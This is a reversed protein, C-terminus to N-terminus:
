PQLGHEKVFAEAQQEADGATGSDPATTIAMQEIVEECNASVNDEPERVLARDFGSGCDVVDQTGVEDGDVADIFDNDRGGFHKDTGQQGAMGDEGPGGYIEDDGEEGFLIAFFAGEDRDNGEQGRIIDNGMNGIIFDDAGGGKMVDNGSLPNHAPDGEHLFDSGGGGNYRDPENGGVLDDNSSGGNLEDQGGLANVQDFGGLAFILDRQATGTIVDNQNTGRCQGPDPDQDGAGDCQVSLAYAVGSVVLVAAAMAAM